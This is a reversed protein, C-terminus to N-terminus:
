ASCSSRYATNGGKLHTHEATNDYTKPNRSQVVSEILDLKRLYKGKESSCSENRDDARQNVCTYTDQHEKYPRYNLTSNVCHTVHNEIGAICTCPNVSKHLTKQNRKTQMMHEIKREPLCCQATCQFNRSLGDFTRLVNEKCLKRIRCNLM